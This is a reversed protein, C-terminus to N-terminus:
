FISVITDFSDIQELEALADGRDRYTAVMINLLFPTSCYHQHLPHNILFQEIPAAAEGVTTLFHQTQQETLPQITVTNSIALTDPLSDYESTRCCVILAPESNKLFENIAALCASRYQSKVEDLGDLLLVFAHDALWQRAKASPIEYSRHMEAVVWDTITGINASWTGLNLLLPIPQHPDSKLLHWLDDALDLLLTTKGSGEAGLLLLRHHHRFLRIVDNSSFLQVMNTQAPRTDDKEDANVQLEIQPAYTARHPRAAIWRQPLWDVLQERNHLFNPNTVTVFPIPSLAALAQEHRFAQVDPCGALALLQNLWADDGGHRRVMATGLKLVAPLSPINSGERCWYDIMSGGDYGLERGLQNQIDALTTNEHRKIALLGRKLHKAFSNAQPNYTADDPHPTRPM